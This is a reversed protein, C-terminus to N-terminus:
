KGFNRQVERIVAEQNAKNSKGLIEIGTDSTRFYVRAGDRARAESLGSGIPKTGIGPNSNGARLQEVLRDLSEQHSRGATEAEKVLRPSEKIRSSVEIGAETARELRSAVKAADAAQDAGPVISAGIAATALGLDTKSSKGFPMEAATLVLDAVDAVVGVAPIMGLGALAVHTTTSVKDYTSREQPAQSKGNWATMEAGPSGRGSATTGQAERADDAKRQAQSAEKFSWAPEGSGSTAPQRAAEAQAEARAQAQAQAERNREMTVSNTRLVQAGERQLAQRQEPSLQSM